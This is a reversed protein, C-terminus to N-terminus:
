DRGRYRRHLLNDDSNTQAQRQHLQKTMTMLGFRTSRLERDNKEWVAVEPVIEESADTMIGWITVRFMM